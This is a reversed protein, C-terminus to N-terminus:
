DLRKGKVDVIMNEAHDNGTLRVCQLKAHVIDGWGLKTCSRAM